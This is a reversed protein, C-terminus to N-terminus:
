PLDLMDDTAQRRLRGTLDTGPSVTGFRKANDHRLAVRQGSEDTDVEIEYNISEMKRPVGQRVGHVHVTVGHLQFKLLPMVRAIGKVICTSLAARLM